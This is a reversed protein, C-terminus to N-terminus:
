RTKAQPVTLQASIWGQVEVKTKTWAIYAKAAHSALERLQKRTEEKGLDYIEGDTLLAVM